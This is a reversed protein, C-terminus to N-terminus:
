QSHYKMPSTSIPKIPGRQKHEPSQTASQLAERRGPQSSRAKAVRSWRSTAVVMTSGPRQDGYKPFAYQVPIM